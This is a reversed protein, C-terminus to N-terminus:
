LIANKPELVYLDFKMSWLVCCSIQCSKRKVILGLFLLEQGCAEHICGDKLLWNSSWSVNPLIWLVCQSNWLSELWGLNFSSPHWFLQINSALSDSDHNRSSTSARSFRSIHSTQVNFNPIDDFHVCVCSFFCKPVESQRFGRSLSNKCMDQYGENESNSGKFRVLQYLSITLSRLKWLM